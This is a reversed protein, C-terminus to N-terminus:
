TAPAFDDLRVEPSLARVPVGFARALGFDAVKLVNGHRSILLNQTLALDGSSPM